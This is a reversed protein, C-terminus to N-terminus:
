LRPDHRTTVRERMPARRPRISGHPRRARAAARRQGGRVSRSAPAGPGPRHRHHAPRWPRGGRHPLRHPHVAGRAPPPKLASRAVHAMRSVSDVLLALVRGHADVLVLRSRPTPEAAPLGLRTRLDVVPLIRGRLNFVGRIHAPAEPIRTMEGVRVIERARLVPVGYEENGLLFTVLHEEQEPAAPAKEGGVTMVADAFQLLSERGRPSAPAAGGTRAAPLPGHREPTALQRLIEKALGFPPLTVKGAPGAPPKDRERDDEKGAM